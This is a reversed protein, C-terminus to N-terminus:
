EGGVRKEVRRWRAKMGLVTDPRSVLECPGSTVAMRSRWPINEVRGKVRGRMLMQFVSGSLQM